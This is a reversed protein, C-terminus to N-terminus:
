KGVVRATVVVMGPGMAVEVTAEVVTVAAGQAATAVRPDLVVKAVWEEKSGGLDEQAAAAVMVASAM